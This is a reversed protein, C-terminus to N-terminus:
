LLRNIDMRVDFIPRFTARSIEGGPKKGYNNRGHNKVFSNTKSNPRHRLIIHVRYLYSMELKKKKNDESLPKSTKM